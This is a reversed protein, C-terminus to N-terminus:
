ATTSTVSTTIRPLHEQVPAQGLVTMSATDFDFSVSEVLFRDALSRPGRMTVTDWPRLWYAAVATVSVNHFRRLGRRLLNAASRAADVPQQKRDVLISAVPTLSTDAIGCVIMQHPKNHTHTHATGASAAGTTDTITKDEYEYRVIVQNAWGSRDDTVTLATVSGRPGANLHADTRGSPSDPPVQICWTGMGDHFVAAQLHDAFDTVAHWRDDGALVKAGVTPFTRATLSSDIDWILADGPFADGVIEKIADTVGSSTTYTYAVNSAQAIVVQEDSAATITVTGAIYDREVASVRLQAVRQTDAIGTTKLIYSATIRLKLDQRIPDLYALTSTVPFACVMQAQVRPTRRSDFSLNGSVPRLSLTGSRGAVVISADYSTNFAGWPRQAVLAGFPSPDISM